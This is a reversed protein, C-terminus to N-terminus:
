NIQLLFMHVLCAWQSSNLVIKFSIVHCPPLTTVCSPPPPPPPHIANFSELLRLKPCLHCLVFNNVFCCQSLRECPVLRCYFKRKRLMTTLHLTPFSTSFYERQFFIISSLIRKQVSVWFNTFNALWTIMSSSKSFKSWIWESTKKHWMFLM